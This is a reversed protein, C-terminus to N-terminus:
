RVEKGEDFTRREFGRAKARPKKEIAFFASANKATRAAPEPERCFAHNKGRV